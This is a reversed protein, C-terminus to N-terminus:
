IAMKMKITPHPNYGEISFDSFTYEDINKPESTIILKPFPKPERLLQINLEPVHDTYIHTDGMSHIFDGPKLGCSHAILCTLLSYSAVNFPVGLGMDCSRQYMLCSLEGNRVSFQALIHCPPLAMKDLDLANWSNLIIRRSTPDTKILKICEMLQDVGKNNESEGFRRWQHGYVPGLDGEKNDHLGRSDLFERSGHADWIKVGKMSLHNSNTDGQIFWLLEEVVGKWFVRKTTFLPFDTRLSYKCMAGFISFTGVKTRDIVYVGERLIKRILNLYQHEGTIKYLEPIYDRIINDHIEISGTEM